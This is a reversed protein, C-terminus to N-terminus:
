SGGMYQGPLYKRPVREIGSEPKRSSQMTHITKLTCLMGIREGDPYFCRLQYQLRQPATGIRFACPMLSSTM